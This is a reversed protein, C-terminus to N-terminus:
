WNINVECFNEGHAKLLANKVQGTNQKNYDIEPVQAVIVDPIGILAKVCISGPL